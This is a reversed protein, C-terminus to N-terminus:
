LSRSTERYGSSILTWDDDDDVCVCEREAGAQVLLHVSGGLGLVGSYLKGGVFSHLYKPSVGLKALSSHPRLLIFLDM